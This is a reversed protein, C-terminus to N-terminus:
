VSRTRTPTCLFELLLGDEVRGREKCSYGPHIGSLTRKEECKTLRNWAFLMHHYGFFLICLYTIEIFCMNGSGQEQQKWCRAHSPPQVAPTPNMENRHQLIFTPDMYREATFKTAYSSRDYKTTQSFITIQKCILLPINRIDELLRAVNLYEQYTDITGDRFIDKLESILDM